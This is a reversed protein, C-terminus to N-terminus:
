NKTRQNPKSYLSTEILFTFPLFPPALLYNQNCQVLFNSLPHFPLWLFLRNSTCNKLQVKILGSKEPLIKLDCLLAILLKIVLCVCLLSFCIVVVKEKKDVLCSTISEDQKINPNLFILINKKQRTKHTNWWLNKNEIKRREERKM